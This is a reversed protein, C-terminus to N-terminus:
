SRRLVCALTPRTPELMKKRGDQYDDQAQQYSCRCVAQRKAISLCLPLGGVESIRLRAFRACSVTRSLSGLRDGLTSLSTALRDPGSIGKFRPRWAARAM